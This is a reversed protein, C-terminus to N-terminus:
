IPRKFCATQGNSITILEWGEAGFRKLNETYSDPLDKGSRGDFLLACTYDWKTATSGAVARPVVLQLQAAICGAIFGAFVLGVLKFQKM